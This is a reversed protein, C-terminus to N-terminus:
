NFNLQISDSTGDLLGYTINIFITQQDESYSLNLEDIRINGMYRAVQTQIKEKLIVLDINQEFLLNRLGVGFNPLNIREGPYTLLVDILNARAQDATTETGSFMNEENLPFELGITFDRNLDLPNIRGTGKIIPM